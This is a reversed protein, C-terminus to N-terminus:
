GSTARGSRVCVPSIVPALRVVGSRASQYASRTGTVIAFVASAVIVSGIVDGRTAEAEELWWVGGIATATGVAVGLGGAVAHGEPLYNLNALTLLWSAAAGVLVGTAGVVEETSEEDVQAWAPSACLMAVLLGALPPIRCGWARTCHRKTVQM